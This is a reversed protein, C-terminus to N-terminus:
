ELLESLPVEVLVKGKKMTWLGRLDGANYNKASPSHRGFVVAMEVCTIRPTVVGCVWYNTM